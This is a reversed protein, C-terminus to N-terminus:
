TSLQGVITAFPVINDESMGRTQRYFDQGGIPIPFITLAVVADRPDPRAAGHADLASGGEGCSGSRSRFAPSPSWFGPILTLGGDHFTLM